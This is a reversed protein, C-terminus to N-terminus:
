VGSGRLLVPVTRALIKLDSVLSWDELYQVDLRVMEDFSLRNRGSVQWLGTIGPVADLRRRHWEEYLDLEYPLAPRPGILSMEGRLVNILQPLEDLSFRRLWRGVPTVRSDHVLKFVLGRGNAEALGNNSDARHNGNTSRGNRIWGQVYERHATDAADQRMTRLKLLEFKHGHIGVRTQRFLVPGGDTLWILAAAILMIPSALILLISAAALDVLRKIVFNLGAINAGRPGILPVTGLLDVSLGCSYEALMWPVIWWRIRNKECFEIAKQQEERSADPMAIAGELAPWISILENLMTAPGLLPYGRYQRGASGGDLFGVPEYHTMGDLVQDLLYQSVPNFGFIVLPIGIKPSAYWHRLCARTLARGILVLPMSMLYGLVVTVRSINHIHTLFLGLFTIVAALSCAKIVATFERIGGNRMRYLDCARFVMVWLLDLAIIGVALLLPNSDALRSEMARAPDHILLAGVFALGLAISDMAAFLTKQKQLEGAFM